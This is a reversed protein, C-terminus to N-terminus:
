AKGHCRKFKKGSSCHCPENPGTKPGGRVTTVKEVPRARTPSTSVMREKGEKKAVLQIFRSLKTADFPVPPEFTNEEDPAPPADGARSRGGNDYLKGAWRAMRKTHEPFNPALEITLIALELENVVSPAAALCANAVQAHGDELAVEYCKQLMMAANVVDVPLGRELLLAVMQLKVENMDPMASRILQEVEEFSAAGPLGARREMRLINALTLVARLHGQDAALRLWKLSGPEDKECGVGGAMMLFAAFQGEAFGAEASRLTLHFAKSEDREVGLGDRHFRGLESLAVPHTGVSEFLTRAKSYDRTFGMAGYAHWSGMLAISDEVGNEAAARVFALGKDAIAKDDNTSLVLGHQHM